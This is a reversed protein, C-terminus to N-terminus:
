FGTTTERQRNADCLPSRLFKGHGEATSAILAAFYGSYRNAVSEPGLPLVFLACVCAKEPLTVGECTSVVPRATHQPAM